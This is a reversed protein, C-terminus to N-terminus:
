DIAPGSSNPLLPRIWHTDPRGPSAGAKSGNIQGTNTLTSNGAGNIIVGPGSTGTIQGDNAVTLPGTSNIGTTGQIIAGSNNNVAGGGGLVVADSGVNLQAGSLMNVTVNTSGPQAVIATTVPNPQNSDCTVTQGTTPNVTPTCNARAPEAAYSLAATALALASATSRLSTRSRM